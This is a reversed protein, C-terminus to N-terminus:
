SGSAGPVTAIALIRQIVREPKSNAFLTSTPISSVAEELETSQRRNHGTEEIDDWPKLPWVRQNQSCTKHILRTAEIFIIEQLLREREMSQSSENGVM